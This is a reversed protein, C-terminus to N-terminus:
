RSCQQTLKLEAGAIAPARDSAAARRKHGCGADHWAHQQPDDSCRCALV